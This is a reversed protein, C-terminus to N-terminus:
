QVHLPVDTPWRLLANELRTEAEESRGAFQLARALHVLLQPSEPATRSLAELEVLSETNQGQQEMVLARELRVDPSEPRHQLAIDIASRAAGFRQMNANARSLVRWAECALKSDGITLAVESAADFDGAIAKSVVHQLRTEDPSRTVPSSMGIRDYPNTIAQRSM